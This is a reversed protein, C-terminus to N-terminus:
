KTVKGIMQPPQSIEHHCDRCHSIVEMTILDHGSIDAFVDHYRYKQCKPCFIRDDERLIYTDTESDSGILRGQNVKPRTTKCLSANIPM